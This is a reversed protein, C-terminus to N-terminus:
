FPEPTINDFDATSRFLFHCRGGVLEVTRVSLRVRVLVM